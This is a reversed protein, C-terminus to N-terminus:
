SKGELMKLFDNESLIPIELSHAKELKSGADEGAIVYDTSKSVANSVNGSRKRIEEEAEDRKM